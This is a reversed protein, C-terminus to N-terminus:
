NRDIKMPKQKECTIETLLYYINSIKIPSSHKMVFMQIKYQSIIVYLPSFVIKSFDDTIM